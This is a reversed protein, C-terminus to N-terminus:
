RDAHHKWEVRRDFALSLNFDISFRRRNSTLSGFYLGFVAEVNPAQARMRDAGNRPDFLAPVVTDTHGVRRPLWHSAFAPRSHAFTPHTHPALLGALWSILSPFADSGSVIYPTPRM